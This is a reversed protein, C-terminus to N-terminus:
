RAQLFITVQTVIHNGLGLLWSVDHFNLAEVVHGVATDVGFFRHTPIALVQVHVKHEGNGLVLDRGRMRGIGVHVQKQVCATAVDQCEELQGIGRRHAAVRVCGLPHLVDRQFHVANVIQHLGLLAQLGGANRDHADGIVRDELRNVEEIGIAVAQLQRGVRRRRLLHLLQVVDFPVHQLSHDRVLRAGLCAAQICAASNLASAVLAQSEPLAVVHLFGIGVRLKGISQAVLLARTRHAAMRHHDDTGPRDAQRRREFARRAADRRHHQVVVVRDADARAGDTVGLARQLDHVAQM